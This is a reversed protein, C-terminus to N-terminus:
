EEVVRGANVLISVRTNLASQESGWRWNSQGRPVRRKNVVGFLGHAMAIRAGLADYTGETMHQWSLSLMRKCLISRRVAGQKGLLSTRNALRNDRGNVVSRRYSLGVEGSQFGRWVDPLTELIVEVLKFHVSM